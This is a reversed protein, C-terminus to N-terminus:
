LMSMFWPNQGAEDWM